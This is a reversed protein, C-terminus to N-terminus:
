CLFFSFPSLVCVCALKKKGLRRALMESVLPKKQTHEKNEETITYNARDATGHRPAPVAAAAWDAWQDKM